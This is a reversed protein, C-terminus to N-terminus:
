DSFMFPYSYKLYWSASPLIINFYFKFLNHVHLSSEVPQPYHEIAPEKSFPLSYESEM